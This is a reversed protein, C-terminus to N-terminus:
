CRIRAHKAGQSAWIFWAGTIVGLVVKAAATAPGGTSSLAQETMCFPENLLDFSVALMVGAAIANAIGESRQSLETTFFFPIGGLGSALAMPFTYLAVTVWTV